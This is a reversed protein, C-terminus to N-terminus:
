GGGARMVYDQYAPIAIAAIIGIVPVILALLVGWFSWRKQVNNFHEVSEWRKNQWAWERGKFGLIFAMIFGVYPVFALLGIWTKNGIAWIWNLFFAGWSFGKIQDPVVSDRGMGSNNASTDGLKAEPTSYVDEM